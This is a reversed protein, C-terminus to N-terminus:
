VGALRRVAATVAELTLGFHRFLEDPPASHGFGDVGLVDGDLGVYKRWYDSVGAEIALRPPGPPLVQQKWAADQQDFSRTSPMSVVRVHLGQEQLAAQAALALDVESGTAILIAALRGQEASLVYGGRRIELLQVPNRSKAPMAQRSLALVTPTTRQELAVSWAVATEVGDCPRWLDLNPILRLAALHEAPQHTPGDGGVAISDHTLVYIAGLGMLAAMRLANRAYDSFVLYTGAFPRFGGHCLMGNMIAAMGFERVGYCVFNGGGEASVPKAAPWVAMTSVSLDASGGILEPLHPALRAVAEQSAQRGSWPKAAAAMAQVLHAAIAPFGAPLDGRMRRQFEAAEAPFAAAYAAFRRTWDAQLAKGSEAASWAAGIGPPIVFPPHPWGLAERSRAVEAAGLPAGHCDKSGAMTASGKGILTKCCILSPRAAEQRAAAIAASVAAIDHGDVGGFVQWGYAEFRRPTDDAFWGSVPGDISVGNDDYLIILKGLGLAGALSCVEHSIGEMLCGDGVFVYTYHDVIAHGPRNFETALLREALAMGVANALGQGLPGTTTEVGPTLGYEPHGPTRSGFRRTSRLDDISVGYGSLHLLNYLLLSGHGNSLVFRDRDPWSPDAPNHRLHGHWLAVAIDAMGMPMGPHGAGAHEVADMALVRLATALDQPTVGNAM